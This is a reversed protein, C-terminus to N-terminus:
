HMSFSVEKLCDKLSNGDQYIDAVRWIEVGFEEM